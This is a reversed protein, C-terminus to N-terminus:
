GREHVAYARLGVALLTRESSSHEAIPAETDKTTSYISDQEQIYKEVAENDPLFLTFQGYTNLLSFLEARKLLTIMHSYKESRNLLYDAMTEGTFTYRNSLSTIESTPSPLGM